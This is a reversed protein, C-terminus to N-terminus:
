TDDFNITIPYKIYCYDKWNTGYNNSECWDFLIKNNELKFPFPEWLKYKFNFLLNMITMENTKCLPYNNMAEILQTKNCFDLISTDYIWICNLFHNKNFIETGFDKTLTEINNTNDFSVQSKFILYDNHKGDIPALFKNKFDLDLLYKVDDLVRLGSDMYIIREFKRFYDDFVHLKEWQLLKTIERKDTTDIFGNPGINNLLITKDILPFKVETINYFDKFNSNLDFDITILCIIDKWNGKSRLDIITRKAKYYYSNDCVLVFATNIM